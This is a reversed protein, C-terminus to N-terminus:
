KLLEIIKWLFDNAELGLIETGTILPLVYKLLIFLFLLLAAMKGGVKSFENLFVLITNEWLDRMIKKFTKESKKGKNEKRKSLSKSNKNKKNNKM